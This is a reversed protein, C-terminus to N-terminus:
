AMSRSGSKSVGPGRVVDSRVLCAMSCSQPEHSAAKLLMVPATQWISSSIAWASCLWAHTGSCPEPVNETSAMSPVKTGLSPLTSTGLLPAYQWRMKFISAYKPRSATSSGTASSWLAVGSAISAAKIASVLMVWTASTYQSVPAPMSLGKGSIAAATCCWPRRKSSSAMLENPAISISARVVGKSASTAADPLHMSPTGPM